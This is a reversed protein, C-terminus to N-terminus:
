TQSGGPQGVSEVAGELRVVDAKIGRESLFDEVGVPVLHRDAQRGPRLRRRDPGAPSRLPVHLWRLGVCRRSRTPRSDLLLDRGTIGVDLTGAGVYVAIDRPRLYFFHVGNDRDELSLDRRDRRQHYGAETLMDHAAESLAGKNPVAIKLM